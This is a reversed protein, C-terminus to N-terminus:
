RASILDGSQETFCYILTHFLYCLSSVLDNTLIIGKFCPPPSPSKFVKNSSAVAKGWEKICRVMQKLKERRAGERVM